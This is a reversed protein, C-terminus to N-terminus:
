RGPNRKVPRVHTWRRDNRVYEVIDKPIDDLVASDLPPLDRAQHEWLRKYAEQMTAHRDPNMGEIVVSNFYAVFTPKWAAPVQYKNTTKEAMTDKDLNFYAALAVNIVRGYQGPNVHDKLRKLLRKDLPVPITIHTQETPM